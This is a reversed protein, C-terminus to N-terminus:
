EGNRDNAQEETIAREMDFTVMFIPMPIDNDSKNGAVEINCAGSEQLAAVLPIGKYSEGQLKVYGFGNDVLDM